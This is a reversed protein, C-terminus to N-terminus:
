LGNKLDRKISSSHRNEDNRAREAQNLLYDEIQNRDLLNDDEDEIPNTQAQPAQAQAQEQPQNPLIIRQAIRTIMAELREESPMVDQSPGQAQGSSAITADVLAQTTQYELIRKILAPKNGVKSLNHELLYKRLDTVTWARLVEESLITSSMQTKIEFICFLAFYFLAFFLLALNLSKQM